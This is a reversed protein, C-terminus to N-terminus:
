CWTCLLGGASRDLTPTDNRPRGGTESRNLVARNTSNSARKHLVGDSLAAAVGMEAREPLSSKTTINSKAAAIAVGATSCM